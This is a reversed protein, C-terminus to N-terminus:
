FAAPCASVTLALLCLDIKLKWHVDLVGYLADLNWIAGVASLTSLVACTVHLFSVSAMALM